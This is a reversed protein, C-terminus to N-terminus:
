RHAKLKKESSICVVINVSGRSMYEGMCTVNAAQWQGTEGCTVTKFSRGDNFKLQNLCFYEVVSNYAYFGTNPNPQAGDSSSTAPDAIPPNGCVVASIFHTLYEHYRSGSM